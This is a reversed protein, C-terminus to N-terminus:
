HPSDSFLSSSGIETPRRDAETWGVAVPEENERRVNRSRAGLGHQASNSSHNSARLPVLRRRQLGIDV